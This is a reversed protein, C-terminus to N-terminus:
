AVQGGDGEGYSPDLLGGFKVIKGASNTGWYSQKNSYFTGDDDTANNGFKDVLQNNNGVGYKKLNGLWPKQVQPQFLGLYIRNSSITRNTTSAPVVPAVFSTNSEKVRNVLEDILAEELASTNNVVYYNGQGHVTAATELEPVRSTMLQIISTSINQLGISKDNSVSDVLFDVDYLLKAADEITGAAGDNDKDGIASAAQPSPTSSGTTLLIVINTQCSFQLPSPAAFTNSSFKTNSDNRGQYYLRADWLTENVPQGTNTSLMTMADVASKFATFDPDIVSNGFGDVTDDGLDKIEAKVFGGHNNTGFTMLGFRAMGRVPEVVNKLVAKIVTFLSANIEWQASGDIIAPGGATTPWSPEAAGSSGAVICRYTNANSTNKSKVVAGVAYSTTAAWTNTAPPVAELKNILNGLYFPGDDNRGGCAGSTRALNKSSFGSDRLDELVAACTGKISGDANQAVYAQYNGQNLKKYIANKIYAGPYTTDKNYPEVGGSKDMDKSNDVIFLVNPINQTSAGTYIATDGVFTDPAAFLPASLFGMFVMLLGILLLKKM